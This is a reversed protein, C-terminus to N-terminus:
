QGIKRNVRDRGIPQENRGGVRESVTFAQSICTRTEYAKGTLRRSEFTAM